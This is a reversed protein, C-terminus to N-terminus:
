YVTIVEIRHNASVIVTLEVGDDDVGRIRWAGNSQLIAHRATLFVSAIDRRSISRDGSRSFAHVSLIFGGPRRAAQRLRELVAHTTLTM